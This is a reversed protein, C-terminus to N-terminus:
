SVSQINNTIRGNKICDSISIELARQIKKNNQLETVFDQANEIDPLDLSLNISGISTSNSFPLSKMNQFYGSTSVPRTFRQMIDVAEPLLKTFDQTLITENPNVRVRINDGDKPVGDARIIGGTQFGARPYKQRLSKYAKGSAKFSGDGSLNGLTQAFMDIYKLGGSGTGSKVVYGYKSLKQNLESSFSEGNKAPRLPKTIDGKGSHAGLFSKLQTIEAGRMSQEANNIQDQMSSFLSSDAPQSGTSSNPQDKSNQGTGSNGTPPNTSSTGDRALCDM